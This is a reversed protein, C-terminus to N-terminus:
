WRASVMKPVNLAHGVCQEALFDDITVVWPGKPPRSLVHVDFDPSLQSVLREFTAHVGGRRVLPQRHRTRHCLNQRKLADMCADCSKPCNPRMYGPNSACQWRRARARLLLLACRLHGHLLAAGRAAGRALCPRARQAKLVGRWEAGVNPM